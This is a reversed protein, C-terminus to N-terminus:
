EALGFADHVAKIAREGDAECRIKGELLAAQKKEADVWGCTGRIGVLLDATRITM